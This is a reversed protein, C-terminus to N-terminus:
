RTRKRSTEKKRRKEWSKALIQELTMKGSVELSAQPQGYGYAALMKVASNWSPHNPNAIVDKCARVVVKRSLQKRCWRKFADPTRGPGPKTRNIRPDGKVFQGPRRPM